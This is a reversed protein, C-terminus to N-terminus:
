GLLDRAQNIRAALYSSGGRDPHMKLMLKRHADTIEKKNAGEELGLIALAEERSMASSGGTGHHSDTYEDDDRWDGHYRDLYAEVLPVSQADQQRVEQLVSLLQDLGLQNLLSGKFAGSLIEGNIDGSEHDLTMGLWATNVRSNQQASPGMFGKLSKFARMAMMGRQIWPLAAGLIAFLWPIRGTVVLLILVGALGYIVINRLAENRQAPTAKGLWSALFMLGVVSILLLVARIAM